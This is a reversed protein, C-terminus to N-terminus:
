VILTERVNRQFMFRGRETESGLIEEDSILIVTKQDMHVKNIPNETQLCFGDVWM